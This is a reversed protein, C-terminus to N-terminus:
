LSIIEIGAKTKNINMKYANAEKGKSMCVYIRPRFCYNEKISKQFPMDHPYTERQWSKSSNDICKNLHTCINKPVHQM